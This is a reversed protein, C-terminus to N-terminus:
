LAPSRQRRRGAPAGRCLDLPRRLARRDELRHHIRGSKGRPHRHGGHVHRSRLAHSGHALGSKQKRYAELPTALSGQPYEVIIKRIKGLKGARAMDRAEKVLPYGTYNHMLAFLLGNRKVIAELRKAQELSWTMPKDCVVAFGNDLALRAMDFHLHNPVVISVFDMPEGPPLRSEARIMEEFTAYVREPPLYLAAGEARSKDPDSSFVGCVLECHGDLAAAMRHVSGIFSDRGGGIMGMKLKGPMACSGKPTHRNNAAKSGDRTNADGCPPTDVGGELSSAEIEWLRRQHLAGREAQAQRRSRISVDIGAAAGAQVDPLPDPRIRVAARAPVSDSEGGAAGRFRYVDGQRATFKSPQATVSIKEPAVYDEKSPVIETVLYTEVELATDKPFTSLQIGHDLLTMIVAQQTAPVIYGLPRSVTLRSEVIPFWNKVVQEVVQPPQAADAPAGARGQRAFSKLQLEPQKPDRVYAMKLHVVNDSAPKAAKRLLEARRDRVLTRVQRSDEAVAEILGRIGAYQWRTREQLTPVDHRSSCEQIFSLTDYIGPSNRGDNLDTTSPRMLTERPQGQAPRDPAGAAQNSGMAESVLYEHWTFGAATVKKEIAPFVKERSYRELSPHININSVCGTSVRYYDDGKEHVDLTVEPMWARFVRHIARTEPSELKVHDRNLDLNQENTRRNVFNGYPNAQAIVLFNLQKLLPKLEGLALDRIIALAAEKASQENGHQSATIMVTLKNRNLTGPSSSM